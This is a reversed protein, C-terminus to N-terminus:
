GLEASDMVGADVLIRLAPDIAPRYRRWRGVGEANIPLRVQAASATAVASANEHFRLCAEEFELGCFGLMRRVQGELDGVIDEYQVAMFRDPPLKEEFSRVMADFRVVHRATDELDFSYDVDGAGPAFAQRYNGLVTDAPHRRLCIVRAEPLARLILPTLFANEPLKDVFRGTVGLRKEVRALYDRGVAGADVSGGAQVLEAPVLRASRVGSAQKLVNALDSLEGASTVASHSSLIREALTTGTRPMGVVFIPAGKVDSAGGVEVSRMAAEFLGADAAPDFRGKVGVKARALWAMAQTPDGMDEHAKAIAHGIAHMALHDGAMRQALATLRPIENQAPTQKTIQVLGAWAPGHGPDRALCQRFAERAEEFRGLYVLAMAHNYHYGPAGGARAARAYFEAAKDHLGARTLVVGATDLSYPDQAKAGAAEALAVAEDRRDLADLSRAKQAMAQAFDPKARLAGDFAAVADGHAERMALAVGLMYLADPQGPSTALAQRLVAEAVRHDGAALRQGAQRLMAGFDSGNM